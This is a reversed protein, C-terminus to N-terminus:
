VRDFRPMELREGDRLASQHAVIGPATIALAEYVNVAPERNEILASIFEHTLPGHPGGNGGYDMGPPIAVREEPKMRPPTQWIWSGTEGDAACIWFVNIRCMTQESTAFLASEGPSTRLKAM